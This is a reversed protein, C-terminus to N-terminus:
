EVVHLNKEKKFNKRKKLFKLNTTSGSVAYM